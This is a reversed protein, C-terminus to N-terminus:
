LPAARLRSPSWTAGPTHSYVLVQDARHIAWAAKARRKVSWGAIGWPFQLIAVHPRKAGIMPWNNTVSLTADFERLAVQPRLGLALPRFRIGELDLEFTRQLEGVLDDVSRPGPPVLVDVSHHRALVRCAELFYREGGGRAHLFPNYAGVKMGDSSPKSPAAPV